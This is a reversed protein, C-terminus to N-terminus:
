IGAVLTSLTVAHWEGNEQWRVTVTAEDLTPALENIRLLGQGQPLSNAPSQGTGFTVTSFSYTLPSSLAVGDILGNATLVNQTQIGQFGADQIAEIHRQALATATARNDAKVRSQTSVPFTASFLFACLLLVGMAFTVEVLTMGRRNRLMGTPTMRNM